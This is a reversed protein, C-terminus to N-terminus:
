ADQTLIRRVKDGVFEIQEDNMEAADLNLHGKNAHYARAVVTPDGDALAETLSAATHQTVEQDPTLRARSFPCGNPDPDVKLELGPINPLRELIMQVRRDQEATWAAIDNGTMCAAVDRTISAATCPTIRDSQAGTSDAIVHGAAAQLEDLEFFHQLSEAAIARVQPHVIAGGLATMKGCANIVRRLKYREFLDVGGTRATNHEYYKFTSLQDMSIVGYLPRRM